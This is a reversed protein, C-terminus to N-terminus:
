NNFDGVIPTDTPLGYLFRNNVTGDMGYDLIWQGSRFVGIDTIGDNNFDGVIPTDTPLGYLFRNNVTGDMGYDLIWQGSRFVGIDTIGSGVTVYGAKTTTNSGNASTVTLSVSYSGNNAFTHVPNQRTSNTSDSDGFNWYWSTPNGGSTDTFSVTLPVSGATTSATFQAVPYLHVVTVGVHQMSSYTGGWTMTHTSYDWTDHILIQDTGSYGVGLVTHGVLQILVPNGSDIESKYQAYTFGKTNGNYGYIYQNYDTAVQYGRSEAFLKMGHTGDRRNSSESGTYDITKSGDNYYYFTTSGDTNLWNQYQNTGMYDGISDLPSHQTWSGTYYPDVNSDYASYYDDVHGRTTRSDIGNQSASLPCVGQGESSTGWVANTLPFLGSNTPGTYMNPYGARDYYGFYMAASTASCGYSWKLTPINDANLSSAMFAVIGSANIRTSEPSWGPPPLGPGTIREDIQKGNVSYQAVLYKGTQNASLNQVSSSEQSANVSENKLLGTEPPTVTMAGRVTTPTTTVTTENLTITPTPIVTTTETVTTEAATTMSENVPLSTGTTTPLATVEATVPTTIPLTVTETTNAVTTENVTGSNEEAVTTEVISITANATVKDTSDAIAGGSL